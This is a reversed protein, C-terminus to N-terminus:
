FATILALLADDPNVNTTKLKEDTDIALKILNLLKQRNIKKASTQNKRVVYPNIKSQSAIESVPLNGAAKVINLIHLQWAIMGLIAKPQMGESRQENYFRLAKAIDGAAAADLMAFVSSQPAYETLLLISEATIKPQYLVLKTLESIILQHNTGIRDILIQATLRDISGGLDQAEKLIWNLLESGELHNFERVEALKKIVAAYKSRNDLQDEVVILDTTDAMASFISEIGAALEKNAAISRVVVLRRSSLFPLTTIAEILTELSIDEGILKDIALTGHLNIFGTIYDKVAKERAPTNDGIFLIIM